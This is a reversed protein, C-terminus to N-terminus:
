IYAAIQFCQFIVRCLFLYSLTIIINFIYLGKLSLWTGRMEIYFQILCFFGAKIQEQCKKM